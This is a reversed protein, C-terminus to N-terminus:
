ASNEESEEELDGFNKLIEELEADDEVGNNRHFEVVKDATLDELRLSPLDDPNIVNDAELVRLTAEIAQSVLRVYRHAAKLDDDATAIPNGAKLADAMAKGALLRARKLDQYGAIRTEEIWAMRQDAYKEANRQVAAKIGKGAAASLEEKRSGWIIGDQKFWKHLYQRTVGYEDALEVIRKLGLEAKERIEAREVETLRKNKREAHTKDEEEPAEEELELEEGSQTEKSM